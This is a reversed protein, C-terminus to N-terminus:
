DKPLIPIFRRTLSGPFMPGAVEPQLTVHGIQFNRQLMDRVQALTAPWGALDELMIHASLALMGSSLTWVHLDHVSRVEPIAAIRMGVAELELGYPVGEMLVNLTERLLRVTSYLILCAIALSLIPDALTSDSFYVLAGSVLAAVSGLLDGLAHLVAARSNLSHGGGLLFLVGFNAAMGLSAIVMVAGGNVATPEHLHQVAAIVLAVVVAIMILSNALAAVIEARVLGYSHRGSPPKRGIWFALLSLALAASDLFMHGADGLLALSHTWFGGLGEVLAFGLTLMLARRIAREERSRAALPAPGRGQAHGHAHRGHAHGAHDHASPGSMPDAPM